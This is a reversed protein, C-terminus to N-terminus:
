PSRQRKGSPIISSNSRYPRERKRLGVPARSTRPATPSAPPYRTGAAPMALAAPRAVRMSRPSATRTFTHSGRRSSVGAAKRRTTSTKM